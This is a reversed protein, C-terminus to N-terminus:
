PLAEQTAQPSVYVLGELIRSQKASTDKMKVDYVYPTLLRKVNLGGSVSASITDVQVQPLSMKVQGTNTVQDLITFAFEAPDLGGTLTAGSVTNGVSSIALTFANGAVGVVAYTVSIILGAADYVCKILQTDTSARLFALLNAVTSLLTDGILVEGAGPNAARFTIITGNLTVTDGDGPTATFKIFGAAREGGAIPESPDTSLRMEAAFEYGTIDTPTSVGNVLSSIQIVTSFDAGQNMVLSVNLAKLGM